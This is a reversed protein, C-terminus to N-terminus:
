EHGYRAASYVPTDEGSDQVSLDAGADILVKVTSAYGSRAAWHIPKDCPDGPMKCANPDVGDALFQKVMSADGVGAAQHITTIPLGKKALM